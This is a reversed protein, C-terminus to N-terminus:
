AGNSFCEWSTAYRSPEVESPMQVANAIIAELNAMLVVKGNQMVRVKQTLKKWIDQQLQRPIGAPRGFPNGSQGKKFQTEIPPSKYGTKRRGGPKKRPM